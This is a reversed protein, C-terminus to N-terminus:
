ITDEIPDLAFDEIRKGYYHSDTKSANGNLEEMM